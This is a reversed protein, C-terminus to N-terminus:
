AQRLPADRKPTRAIEVGYMLGSVFATAKIQILRIQEENLGHGGDLFL